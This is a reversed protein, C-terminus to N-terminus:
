NKHIHDAIWDAGNYGAVGGVIGGIIGTVIAGPGTEIGLLAGAAGGVKFGLIAGGWGGAQRIVEATIPKASKKDMSAGAAYGLDYGTFAFGIIQIVRAGRAVNLSTPTYIASPPVGQPPPKILVEKEVSSIANILKDVRPTTEPYQSKYKVLESIIEETTVQAAGSKIAKNIDIIIEKGVFNSAGSPYNGSTSVYQTNIRWGETVHEVVSAAASSNYPFLGFVEPFVTARKLANPLGRSVLRPDDIHAYTKRVLFGDKGPVEVVIFMFERAPMWHGSMNFVSGQQKNTEPAVAGM